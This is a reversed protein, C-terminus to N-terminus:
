AIPGNDTKDTVNTYQPWVAPHILIGSPICTPRPGHSQTWHPGLGGFPAYGGLKQGM